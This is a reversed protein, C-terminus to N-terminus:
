GVRGPHIVEITVTQETIQYILRYRGMHSRYRDVGWVFAGSPRPQRALLDVADFVQSLGDPDDAMYTQVAAFAEDAWVITYTM